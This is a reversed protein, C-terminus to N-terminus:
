VKAYKFRRSTPLKHTCFYTAKACKMVQSIHLPTFCIGKFYIGKFCIGKFYIGKFCIGKFCIGKFCIGKFYIGKFCIGKFTIKILSPNYPTLSATDTPKRLKQIVRNEGVYRV